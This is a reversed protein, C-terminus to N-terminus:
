QHTRLQLLSQTPTFFFASAAIGINTRPYMAVVIGIVAGDANLIAAGSDGGIPRNNFLLVFKGREIQLHYVHILLVGIFDELPNFAIYRAQLPLSELQNSVTFPKISGTDGGLFGYDTPGGDPIGRLIRTFPAVRGDFFKVKMSSSMICHSATLVLGPGIVSGSCVGVGDTTLIQVAQEYVIPMIPRLKGAASVSIVILVLLLARLLRM